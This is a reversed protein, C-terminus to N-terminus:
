LAWLHTLCEMGTGEIAKRVTDRVAPSIMGAYIGFWVSAARMGLSAFRELIPAIDGGSGDRLSILTHLADVYCEQRPSDRAQREILPSLVDTSTGAACATMLIHHVTDGHGIGEMAEVAKMCHEKSEDVRGRQLLAIASLHHWSAATTPDSDMKDRLADLTDSADLCRDLLMEARYVLAIRSFKISGTREALRELKTLYEEAKEWRCMEMHLSVLNSYAYCLGDMSGVLTNYYASREYAEQAEDVKGLEQYVTGINNYVVGLGVDDMLEEDLDKSRIYYDLAREYDNRQSHVIGMNNYVAAIGKRDGIEEYMRLAKMYMTEADEDRYNYLHANGLMKLADALLRSNGLKEASKVCEDLTGAAEGYQGRRLQAGGKVMLAMVRLFLDDDPVSLDLGADYEGMLVRVDAEAIRTYMEMRRLTSSADPLKGARRQAEALQMYVYPREVQDPLLDLSKLAMNWYYAASEHDGQDECVAAARRSYLYARSHDGSRFTHEAMEYLDDESEDGWVALWADAARAHLQARNEVTSYVSDRVRHNQFVICRGRTPHDMYVLLGLSTLHELDDDVERDLMRTLIERNFLPGVVAAARLVERGTPPLAGLIARVAEEVTSFAGFRGTIKGHLEGLSLLLPSGRTREWVERTYMDGLWARVDDESLNDVLVFRATGTAFLIEIIETLTPNEQGVVYSGVFLLGPFSEAAMRRLVRLSMSDAHHLNRWYVVKGSLLDTVDGKVFRHYDVGPFHLSLFRKLTSYPRKMEREDCRYALLPLGTRRAFEEVLASKGSGPPGLLFVVAGKEEAERYAEQLMSLQLDRNVFM